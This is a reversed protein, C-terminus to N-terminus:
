HKPKKGNLGKELMDKRVKTSEKRLFVFYLLSYLLGLAIFFYSFNLSEQVDHSELTRENECRNTYGCFFVHFGVVHRIVDGSDVGNLFFFVRM